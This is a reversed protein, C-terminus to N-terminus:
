LLFSILIVQAVKSKDRTSYIRVQIKQISAHILARIIKNMHILARVRNSNMWNM